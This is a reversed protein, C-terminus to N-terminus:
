APPLTVFLTRRRRQPHRGRSRCICRGCFQLLIDAPRGCNDLTSVDQGLVLAMTGKVLSM